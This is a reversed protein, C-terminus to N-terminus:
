RLQMVNQIDKFCAKIEETLFNLNTQSYVKREDLKKKWM